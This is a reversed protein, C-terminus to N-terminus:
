DEERSRKAWLTGFGRLVPVLWYGRKVAERDIGVFPGSQRQGVFTAVGESWVNTMSRGSSPNHWVESSVTQVVLSFDRTFGAVLERTGGEGTMILEWRGSRYKNPRARLGPCGAMAWIREQVEEAAGEPVTSFPDVDGPRLEVKAPLGRNYARVYWRAEMGEGEPVPSAGRAFHLLSLWAKPRSLAVYLVRVEMPLPDRTQGPQPTRRVPETLVVNDFERGKARHVTSVTVAAQMATGLLVESPLTHPLRIREEIKSRQLAGHSSDGCVLGLLRHAEEASEVTGDSGPLSEEWASTVDGIGIRDPLRPLMRGIWGPVLYPSPPGILQHQIPPDRDLLFESILLADGNTRTLIATRGTLGRLAEELEAQRLTGEEKLLDTILTWREEWGLDPNRLHGSANDVLKAVRGQHRKSGRIEAVTAHQDDKLWEFFSDFGTGGAPEDDPRLYEYIAQNPDACVTFGGGGCALIARIFTDRVGYLDQAEDVIIHMREALVARAETSKTLLLVASKMSEEYGGTPRPVDVADHLSTAFSDMTRVDVTRLAGAHLQHSARSLREKMERVAARTYSLLLVESHPKLGEVLVLHALRASVVHTKGTGPGALVVQKSKFPQQVILQQELTLQFFSYPDIASNAEPQRPSSRSLRIQGSL